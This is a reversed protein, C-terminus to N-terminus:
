AGGGRHEPALDMCWAPGWVPTGAIIARRMGGRRRGVLTVEEWPVSMPRCRVLRALLAPRLHLHGADVEVHVSWGLNVLAFRFSQFERRLADPRAERPPFRDALTGWSARVLAPIVLGCVVLLDIAVVGLVIAVTAWAPMARDGEGAM